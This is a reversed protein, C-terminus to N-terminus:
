GKIEKQQQQKTASNHRVRRSGTSQPGGPEETRPIRWAPITSHTAMRNERPDEQGLVLYFVFWLLQFILSFPPFPLNPTQSQRTCVAIHLISLVGIHICAERPASIPFLRDATCSVWTWDRPPSSGRSFPITVWEVIGAQLIGRASSGPPSCDM